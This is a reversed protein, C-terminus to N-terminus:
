LAERPTLGTLRRFERSLHAQDAFGADAAARALDRDGARMVARLRLVRHLTKPGYGVASQFRRRLQRESVGLEDALADVRTHGRWLMLAAAQVLQDPPAEAALRVGLAGIAAVPDDEIGEVGIGLKSLAVRRDRLEELPVGLAPGGAGPLFRIGVILEDPDTHSIWPGTDPGAVVAGTSARWVIDTCADPIVRVAGGGGRRVWVCAVAGRVAAPPVLEVYTATENLVPVLECPQMRAM